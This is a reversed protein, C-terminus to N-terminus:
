VVERPAPGLGLMTRALARVGNLARYLVPGDGALIRAAVVGPAPTSASALAGPLTALFGHLEEALGALEGPAVVYVTALYSYGGFAEGGGELELGDIAEPTGDRLLLTRSSLRDFAFREGRAIRGAGFAEWAILTAEVALEVVTEQRYRSGAFPIAHHPVYELLGGEAVALRSRAVASAGRYVKTAGQTCVTAQAGAALRVDLELRDGGLTGGAPNTIQVEPVGSRDPRTVAVAGFPQSAFRRAVRTVAGSRVLAV